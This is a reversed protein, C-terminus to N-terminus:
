CYVLTRDQVDGDARVIGMSLFIIALRPPTVPLHVTPGGPRLISDLLCSSRLFSRGLSCIMTGRLKTWSLGGQVGDSERLQM